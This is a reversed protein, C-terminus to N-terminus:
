NKKGRKKTKAPHKKAPRAKPASPKRANRSHKKGFGRARKEGSHRGRRKRAPGTSYKDMNEPLFRMELRAMDAKELRVRVAQGLKWVQGTKQGILCQAREDLEFWDNALDDLRILGELPMSALEVFIGFDTVGSVSADFVEGEHGGLLLCGMRRIMERECEMAKRELVNLQNGIDQLEDFAPNKGVPQGLDSKLARHVLLDAYRRIPSTFHCYARSALGFHGINEPQYRAQQMARLCLRNVVYEAPTGFSAAIIKQLADEAPRGNQFIGAPLNEVSAAELTAFLAALKTEEPAPHVRYLFPIRTTSLHRAVAENAAIMFEEILKHADNREANRVGTISGDEAFSYKPEPLDFDLTGREKRARALIKFLEHADKLMRGIVDADRMQGRSLGQPDSTDFFRQVDEYVLRGWSQMVIPAFRPRGPAGQSDFPIEVLMALRKQLPALSCLGNSLERPLMPEVSTPFYWSNGRRLAEADLGDPAGDPRVYHSVDAIAVRLLWKGNERCVQIADDFDRADAGDITVFPVDSLDERNEMDSASPADPLAAAQELAKAPFIRPVDHNLKVMDEQVRVDNERGLIEVLEADHLHSALRKKPAVLLLHGPALDAPFPEGPMFSVSVNFHLRGDVPRCLLARGTRRVCQVPINALTRKLVQIVRARRAKGGAERGRAPVIRVIDNHWAENVDDPHIFFEEGGNHDTKVFGGGSLLAGFRGELTKPSEAKKSAKKKKM